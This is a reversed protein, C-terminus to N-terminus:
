ADKTRQQPEDEPLATGRARRRKLEELVERMGIKAGVGAHYQEVPLIRDTMGVEQDRIKGALWREFEDLDAGTM